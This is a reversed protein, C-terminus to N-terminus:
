LGGFMRVYVERGARVDGKCYDQIEQHKGAKYYSWVKSGDLDGKPSEIAFAKCLTDLSVSKAGKTYKGVWEESTCCYRAKTPNLFFGDPGLGNVVCRQWLFRLDFDAVKHGIYLCSRQTQAPISSLLTTLLERESTGPYRYLAMPYNNDLALGVCIVEGFAGNLSTEELPTKEHEHAARAEAQHKAITEPKSYERAIAALKKDLNENHKRTFEVILDPRQTPITEIDIFVNM